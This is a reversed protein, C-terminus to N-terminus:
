QAVLAGINIISWVKKSSNLICKNGPSVFRRLKQSEDVDVAPKVEDDTNDDEPFIVDKPKIEYTDEYITCKGGM